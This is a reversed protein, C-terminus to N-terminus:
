MNVHCDVWIKFYLYQLVICAVCYVTVKFVNKNICLRFDLILNYKLKVGYLQEITDMVLNGILM